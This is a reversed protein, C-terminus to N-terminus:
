LHEGKLKICLPIINCGIINGITTFLIPIIYLINHGVSLSYYFMDAVCHNYGSLIFTAVCFIVLIIAALPNDSRRYGTVAIYMLLGCFIGLIINAYWSNVMRINMIAIAANQLKVFNLTCSLLLGVIFTGIFNGIWIVLLNFMSIQKNALLGVKGTFLNFNFILITILGLSFFIAGPITGLTLNIVGGFAIMIGALISYIIM